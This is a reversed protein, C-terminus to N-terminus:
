SPRAPSAASLGEVLEAVAAPSLPVRAARYAASGAAVGTLVVDRWPLRHALAAAMAGTMADGCGAADGSGVQPPHLVWAPEASDVVAVDGAGSTLVVRAAGRQMLSRMAAERAPASAVPGAVSEALEWDNLKVLDPREPLAADLRPSSLDVVVRAGADHGIRVAAPFVGWPLADGPLPNAVVLVDRGRVAHALADLLAATEAENAPEAWTAALVADGHRLDQVFRGTESGCPVLRADLPEQALLSTLVRGTGGGAFGCLVVDAGLMAAVRGAWVGQGAASLTVTREIRVAVVPHASLLCV